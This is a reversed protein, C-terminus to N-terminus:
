RHASRSRWYGPRRKHHSIALVFIVGEEISYLVTYPFRPVAKGRIASEIIPAGEPYEEIFSTAEEARRLFREGLGPAQQDYYAAADALETRASPHLIVRKV